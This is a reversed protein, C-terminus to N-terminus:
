KGGLLGKEVQYRNAMERYLYYKIIFNDEYDNIRRALERDTYFFFQNSLEYISLKELDENMRKSWEGYIIRCVLYCRYVNGRHM